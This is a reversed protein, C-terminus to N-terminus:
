EEEGKTTSSRSRQIHVKKMETWKIGPPNDAHEERFVRVANKCAKLTLLGFENNTKIWDLFRSKDEISCYTANAHFAIGSETKLNKAGADRLIGDLADELRTMAGEYKAVRAKHAHEIQALKDKLQLYTSIIRDTNPPGSSQPVAAEM